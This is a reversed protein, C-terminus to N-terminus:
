GIGGRRKIGILGALVSIFLWFAGPVPVAASASASAVDGPSVAWAYFQLYKANYHQYGAYTGFYWANDSGPTTESDSWYEENQLNSVLGVNKQGFSSSDVGNNTGNGFVGFDNRIYGTTDYFSKLNLNVSYMYALESLPSTINYSFDTSGNIAYSDNFSSGNIPSNSALRWDSYGGYVLDAAWTKAATWTMMGDADYGSTKAYNADQLWTVDLVNDYLLGGGRDILSAQAGTSASIGLLLIVLPKTKM